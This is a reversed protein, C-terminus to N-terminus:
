RVESLRDDIIQLYEQASHAGIVDSGVFNGQSDVFVTTPFAQINLFADEVDGNPILTHFTAGADDLIANASSEQSPVDECVTLFNAGEPLQEYVEQLDPMEAVCPPCWTAWINVMTIEYEAFIQESVEEGALTTATFEGIDSSSFDVVLKTPEPTPEQTPEPTPEQTPEITPESTPEQTTGSPTPMVEYEVGQEEVYDKIEEFDSSSIVYYQTCGSLVFLIMATVVISIRKM